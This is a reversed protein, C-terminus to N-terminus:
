KKEKEDTCADWLVCTTCDKFADTDVGFKHGYPCKDKGGAAPKAEKAPGAARSLTRKEPEPTPKQRQLPAKKEPEAGPIETGMEKAIYERLEDDGEDSDAIDDVQIDLKQSDVMSVLNRRSLRKLEDWTPPPDKQTEPAPRRLSRKEPEPAPESKRLSKRERGSTEEEPAVDSLTDSSIDDASIEFFKNYIEDYTLVKFIKDLDPVLDLVSQDYPQRDLFEIHTAEPFNNKGLQKWKFTTELTKGEELDPFIEMAPKVELADKLTEQFLAQSMDWVYIENDIALVYLNRDKPYLAKTEDKEAGEDYRKKQHECIPCPKGFSKPCIVKEDDTGVNNHVKIPRRYWLDGVLAIGRADDRCPHKPDSVVYPLIDFQVLKENEKISYQKVGEPLNLYGRSVRMSKKADEGVKGRFSSQHKATM